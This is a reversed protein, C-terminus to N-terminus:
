PVNSYGASPLEIAHDRNAGLRERFLGRTEAVDDIDGGLYGLV